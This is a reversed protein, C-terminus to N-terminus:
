FAFGFGFFDVDDAGVTGGVAGLGHGEVAGDLSGDSVGDADADVAANVAGDVAGAGVPGEVLREFGTGAPLSAAVPWLM